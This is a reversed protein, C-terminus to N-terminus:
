APIFAVSANADSKHLLREGWTPPTEVQRYGPLLQSLVPVYQKRSIFIVDKPKDKLVPWMKTLTEATQMERDGAIGLYEVQPPLHMYFAVKSEPDLLVFQWPEGREM